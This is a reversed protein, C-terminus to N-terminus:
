GQWGLALGDCDLAMGPGDLQQGRPKGCTCPCKRCARTTPARWARCPGTARHRLDRRTIDHSSNTDRRDEYSDRAPTQLSFIAFATTGRIGPRSHIPTRGNEITESDQYARSRTRPLVTSTLRATAGRQSARRDRLGRPCRVSTRGFSSLWPFFRLGRVATVYLWTARCCQCVQRCM